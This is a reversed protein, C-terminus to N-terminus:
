IHFQPILDQPMPFLGNCTSDIYSRLRYSGDKMRVVYISIDCDEKCSPRIDIQATRIKGDDMRSFLFIQTSQMSYIHFCHGSPEDHNLFDDEDVIPLLMDILQGEYRGVLGFLINNQM